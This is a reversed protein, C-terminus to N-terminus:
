LKSLDKINLATEVQDLIMEYYKGEVTSSDEAYVPRFSKEKLPSLPNINMEFFLKYEDSGMTQLLTQKLRNCWIKWDKKLVTIQKDAIKEVLDMMKRIPYSSPKITTHNGELNIFEAEEGQQEENYIEEEENFAPFCNLQWWAEELNIPMLPKAAIRGDTDIVPVFCSFQLQPGWRVEVVAPQENGWLWNGLSDQECKRNYIDYIEYKIETSHGSELKGFGDKLLWKLWGIPAAIFDHTRGSDDEGEELEKENLVLGARGYNIPLLKEIYKDLSKNKVFEWYLTGSSLVVGAELNGSASNMRNTMGSETLNGSGLYLWSNNFGESGQRGSFIFKAHLNRNKNMPDKGKQVYWDDDFLYNFSSAIAQCSEPNIYIEKDYNNTLLNNEQLEKSIKDIVSPVKGKANRSQYFGSGLALYNRKGEGCNIKVLKPIQDLLSAARNDFFRPVVGRPKAISVIKEFFRKYLINSVSDNGSTVIEHSYYQKLDNLFEWAAYIDARIQKKDSENSKLDDSSLDLCCVLDLSESLTGSTWNGTSVLLRFLYKESDEVSEFFLLSVKAHLLLYPLYMQQMRGAHHIGPVHVPSIQTNGKDLMLIMNIVGSSARINRTKGTFRELALNLFDPDASYGCTMGFNGVHNEPPEFYQVLSPPSYNQISTKM